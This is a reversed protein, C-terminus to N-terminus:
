FNRLIGFLLTLLIVFVGCYNPIRNLIQDKKQYIYLYNKYIYYAIIFPSYFFVLPNYHFAEEFHSHLISFLMRTVGCGPCQYGTISHFVCPISFGTFRHIFYYTFFLFLLIGNWKMVNQIRKKM